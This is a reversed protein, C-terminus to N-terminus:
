LSRGGPARSAPPEAQKEPNPKPQPAMGNAGRHFISSVRRLQGNGELRYVTLWVGSRYVRLNGVVDPTTSRGPVVVVFRSNDLGAVTLSNIPQEATTQVATTQNSPEARTEGV